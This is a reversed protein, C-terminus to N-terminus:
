LALPLIISRTTSFQIVHALPFIGPSLASLRSVSSASSTVKKEGTTKVGWCPLATM